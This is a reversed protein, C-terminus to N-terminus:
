PAIWTGHWNKARTYLARQHPTALLLADIETLTLTIQAFRPATDPAETPLPTGPIPGQYNAQADPPLQAFLDPDGQTLEATARARIQLNAKPIWIHLATRPDNAIETAKPSADDTHLELTATARDARRLVLTRLEPGNAGITALTPHRAPHKRDAKGRLIHQWVTDLLSPLSHENM